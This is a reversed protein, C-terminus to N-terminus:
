SDAQTAQPLVLALTVYEVIQPSYSGYLIGLLSSRHPLCAM